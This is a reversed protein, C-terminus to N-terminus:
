DEFVVVLGKALLGLYEFGGELGVPAVAFQGIVYGNGSEHEIGLYSWQGCRGEAGVKRFNVVTKRGWVSGKM